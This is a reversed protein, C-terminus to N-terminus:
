ASLSKRKEYRTNYQVERMAKATREAVNDSGCQGFVIGACREQEANRGANYIARVMNNFNCDLRRFENCQEDTLEVDTSKNTSKM